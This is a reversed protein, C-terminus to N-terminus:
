LCDAITASKLRGSLSSQIKLMLESGFLEDQCDCPGAGAKIPFPLDVGDEMVELVDYLTILEPEKALCCGGLLGVSTEILKAQRLRTAVYAVSRTTMGTGAAIENASVYERRGAKRCHALYVLLRFANETMKRLKM